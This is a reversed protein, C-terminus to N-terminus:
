TPPQSPMDAKAPMVADNTAEAPGPAVPPRVLIADKGVLVFQSTKTLRPQTDRARYNPPAFYPQPMAAGASPIAVRQNDVCLCNRGTQTRASVFRRLGAMTSFPGTAM